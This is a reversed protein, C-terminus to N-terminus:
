AAGRMLGSRLLDRPDTETLAALELGIDIAADSRSASAQRLAACSPCIGHRTVSQADQYERPCYICQKRM